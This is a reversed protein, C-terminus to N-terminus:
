SFFKDGLFNRIYEYKHNLWAIKVYDGDPEVSIKGKFYINLYRCMGYVDDERKYTLFNKRPRHVGDFYWKEYGLWAPLFGWISELPTAIFPYDLVQWLNNEEIKNSTAMLFKSSLIHQCMCGFFYPSDEKHYVVKDIIKYEKFLNKISHYTGKPNELIFNNIPPLYRNNKVMNKIYLKLKDKSSYISSPVNYFTSGFTDDNALPDEEWKMYLYAFKKDKCFMDYVKNIIDQHYYDMESIKDKRLFANELLWRSTIRKEFGMDLFHPNERKIFKIISKLINDRTFLFGEMFLFVYDYDIWLKNKIYKYWAGSDLGHDNEFEHYTINFNTNSLIDLIRQDDPTLQPNYGNTRDAIEYFKKYSKKGRNEGNGKIYIIHISLNIENQMALSILSSMM